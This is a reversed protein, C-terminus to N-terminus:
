KFRSKGFRKSKSMGKPESEERSVGLNNNIDNNNLDKMKSFEKSRVVEQFYDVRPSLVVRRNM